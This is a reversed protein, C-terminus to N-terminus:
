PILLKFIDKCRGLIEDRHSFPINGAKSTSESKRRVSLLIATERFLLTCRDLGSRHGFSGWIQPYPIATKETAMASNRVCNGSSCKSAAGRESKTKATMSVAQTPPRAGPNSAVHREM